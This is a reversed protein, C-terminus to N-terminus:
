ENEILHKYAVPILTEEKLIFSGVPKDKLKEEDTEKIDLVDHQKIFNKFKSNKEYLSNIFILEFEANSWQARLTGFYFRKDGIIPERGTEQKIKRQEEENGAVNHVIFKVIRYNNRMYHGIDNGYVKHFDKYVNNLLEESIRNTTAFLQKKWKKRDVMGWVNENQQSNQFLYDAKGLKDELIEKLEVIAARGHIREDHVSIQIDKVIQHHLSLMNFFTTEFQQRKMTENTIQAEERSAKLEERQMINTAILLFVSAATFFTVTTGGVFDGVPGLAALGTYDGYGKYRYYFYFPSVAALGICVMSIIFMVNTIKSLWKKM